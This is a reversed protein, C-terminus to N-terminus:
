KTLWNYARAYADYADRYAGVGFAQDGKAFDDLAKAVNIGAAQAATILEEVLQRVLELRGNLSAPLFFSVIRQRDALAREIALRLSLDLVETGGGQFDGLKALIEDATAQSARSTVRADLGSLTAALADVSAQQAPAGLANVSEQSARTAIAANLGFMSLGLADVSAQSARSAIAADLGAVSRAVAEVSAESARSGVALALADVSEQSARTGVLGELTVDPLISRLYVSGQNYVTGVDDEPAGIVITNGAIAVSQGFYDDFAADSASLKVTETMTVWGIAPEEFLYAAGPRSHDADGEFPAGVLITGWAVAVAAGFRSGKAHGTLPDFWDSPTLTAREAVAGNTRSRNFVHASGAGRPFGDSGALPDPAGIVITDGSMATSSGFAAGARDGFGTLKASETGNTWGGAPKHFVYASGQDVNPGVDDGPAGVVITESDFAVSRGFDDGPAGDSAALRATPADTTTWGTAPKVFVLATGKMDGTEPAGVVVTDGVVAVSGTHCPEPVSLKATETATTWGAAPKVFVYALVRQAGIVITDGDIAVARGFGQEWEIEFSPTLQATETMSGWEDGVKTFVYAKQTFQTGVVITDGSIAVAFGFMANPASDSALLRAREIIPDVTIPYQAGRDDVSLRLVNAEIDLRAPLERGEADFATLGAYRLGPRGERDVLTVGREDDDLRPTFDGSSVLALSVEGAAGAPPRALTFGQELGIPGNVYWETVPGRRYEVRNAFATPTAQPLPTERTGRGYRELALSWGSGNARVNLGTTTVAVDIGHRENALRFGADRPTAHYAGLDRGISTSVVAQAAPPLAALAEQAREAGLALRHVARQQLTAPRPPATIPAGAERIPATLAACSLGILLTLCHRPPFPHSAMM